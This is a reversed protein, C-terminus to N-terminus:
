VQSLLPRYLPIPSVWGRRCRCPLSGMNKPTHAHAHAHAQLRPYLFRGPLKSPKTPAMSRLLASPLSALSFSFPPRLRITAAPNDVM